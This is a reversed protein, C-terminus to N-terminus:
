RTENLVGRRSQKGPLSNLWLNLTIVKWLTMADQGTRSAAFRRRTEHLVSIDIYGALAQNATERYSEDRFKAMGTIFAEGLDTKGKRAAINVPLPPSLARRQIIRTVGNRIKLRPPLSFCLDVLRRDFFPYLPEIGHRAAERDAVELSFPIIGSSLRRFHDERASRPSYKSNVGLNELRCQLGTSSAFDQNIIGHISPPGVNKFLHFIQAAPERIVPNFIFDRFIKSLPQEFSTAVGRAEGIAAMWRGKRALDTIHPIGHCVVTDGDYGDLLTDVNCLSAERFLASHLYLNPSYFPEDHARIMVEVGDLPSLQDGCVFHPEFGGTDIVSNIFPSEDCEPILSFVLSFSPLAGNGKTLERAVCSVSSSDLGGSLLAGTRSDSLRCRVADIFTERFAEEADKDTGRFSAGEELQWYRGFRKGESSVRLSQAPPLRLIHSFFTTQKDELAHSLYEGIRLENIAVDIEPLMFLAKIESAFAFIRGRLHCYYLPKVGIHDRALFLCRRDSDWIAFAFDGILRAPFSEGWKRYCACLLSEVSTDGAPLRLLDCLEKHNDIRADAAIPRAPQEAARKDATRSLQGLYTGQPLAISHRYSGRHTLRSLMLTLDLASRDYGRHNQSLDTFGAIAGM